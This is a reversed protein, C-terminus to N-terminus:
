PDKRECHFGSKLIQWEIVLAGGSGRPMGVPLPVRLSKWPRVVAATAAKAYVIDIRPAKAKTTKAKAPAKAKTAIKTTSTKTSKTSHAITQGGKDTTISLGKM